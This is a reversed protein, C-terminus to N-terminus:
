QGVESSLAYVTVVEHARITLEVIIRLECFQLSKFSYFIQSKTDLTLTLLTLTLLPHPRSTQADQMAYYFFFLLVRFCIEQSNEGTRYNNM